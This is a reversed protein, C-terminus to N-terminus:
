SVHNSPNHHFDYIFYDLFYWKKINARGEGEKLLAYLKSENLAWAVPRPQQLVLSVLTTSAYCRGSVFNHFKQAFISNFTM